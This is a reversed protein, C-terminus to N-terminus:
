ETSFNVHEPEAETVTLQVPIIRNGASCFYWGSDSLRLGNMLVTFSNEGDDSIQVSSSQSTNTKNELFCKQDKYRCWQKQTDRYKSSYLCQVSVNSGEHGSVSSSLVSVDPVSKVMLFLEYTTNEKGESELVCYYFGSQRSEINRMTVTYLSQDPRDIVSLNEETTNTYTRLQFIESFWFKMQWQTEENYHCPITVSGGPNITLVHDLGSYSEVGFILWFGVSILFIKNKGDTAM